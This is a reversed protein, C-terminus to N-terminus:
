PYSRAWYVDCGAADPLNAQWDIWNMWSIRWIARPQPAPGISRVKSRLWCVELIGWRLSTMTCHLLSTTSLANHEAEAM